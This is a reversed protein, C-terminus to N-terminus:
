HTAMWEAALRVWEANRPDVHAPSGGTIRNSLAMGHPASEFVHIEFPIHHEAMAVAVLLSSRVDVVNDDATHVLFMPATKEDVCRELSWKARKAPDGGAIRDCYSAAIMAPDLVMAGYVPVAGAPKNEEGAIGAAERVEPLHWLTALAACLHGGASFGTAFVRAPDINFDDARSRIFKMAISAEILPQPFAAAEGVTYHLVFANFGYPIFAQAIPEGERDSCIQSYGGGPIVLIADRKLWPLPDSIYADLLVHGACGPLAFSEFRM